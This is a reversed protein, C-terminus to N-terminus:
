DIAIKKAALDVGGLVKVMYIGRPLQNLNVEQNVEGGQAVLSSSMVQAGTVDFVVLRPTSKFTQNEMRVHYVGNAYFSKDGEIALQHEEMGVYFNVNNCSNNNGLDTEMFWATDLISAFVCFSVPGTSGGTLNVTNTITVSDGSLISQTSKWLVPAGNYLIFSGNVSPMLRITDQPTIPVVGLNRIKVTFNFTIGTTIASGDAPSLLVAELDRQGYSITTILIIACFLVRKM